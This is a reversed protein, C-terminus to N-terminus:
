ASLIRLIENHRDIYMGGEVTISDQGETVEAFKNNTQFEGDADIVYLWWEGKKNLIMQITFNNETQQAEEWLQDYEEMDTSSPSCQFNVHSHGHFRMRDLIDMNEKLWENYHKMDAEVYCPEQRQPYLMVDYIYYGNEQKVVLGRWAIEIDSMNVMEWMKNWAENTITVKM